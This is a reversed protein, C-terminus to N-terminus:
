HMSAAVLAAAGLAVASYVASSSAANSGSKSASASAEESGSDESASSDLSTSASDSASDPFEISGSDSASENGTLGTLLDAILTRFVVDQGEINVTCSLEANAVSNIQNYYDVCDVNQSIAEAQDETPFESITFIDVGTANYCDALGQTANPYLSSQIAGMDCTEAAVLAAVGAAVISSIVAAKM